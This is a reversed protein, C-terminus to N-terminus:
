EEKEELDEDEDEAGRELLEAVCHNMETSCDECVTISGKSFLQALDENPGMVKAIEANGMMMAMGQQRQLADVKLAYREVTVRYFLPIGSKGIPRNCLNCTANQRLEDEKMKKGGLRVHPGAIQKVRKWGTETGDM